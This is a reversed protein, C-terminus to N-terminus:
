IERMDSDDTSAEEIQVENKAVKTETMPSSKHKPSNRRVYVQPNEGLSEVDVVNVSSPADISTSGKRAKAMKKGETVLKRKRVLQSAEGEKTTASFKPAKKTKPPQKKDLKVQTQSRKKRKITLPREEEQFDEDGPETTDDKEDEAEEKSQSELDGMLDYTFKTGDVELVLMKHKVWLRSYKKVIEIVLDLNTVEEELWNIGHLYLSARTPSM